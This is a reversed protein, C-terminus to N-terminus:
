FMGILGIALCLPTGIAILLRDSKPMAWIQRRGIAV